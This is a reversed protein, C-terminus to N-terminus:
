YNMIKVFNLLRWDPLAIQLSGCSGVKGKFWAHSKVKDNDLPGKVYDMICMLFIPDNMKDCYELNTDRFIHVAGWCLKLIDGKCWIEGLTETVFRWFLVATASPEETGMGSNRNNAKIVLFWLM